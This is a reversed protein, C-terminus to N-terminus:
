SGEGELQDYMDDVQKTHRRGTAIHSVAAETVGHEAAIAKLPMGRLRSRVIEAVSADSLSRRGNGWGWELNDLRADAPDNNLYAVRKGPPRPGVYTTLVIEGVTLLAFYNGRWLRVHRKGKAVTYPCPEWTTGTDNLRLVDGGPNCAYHPYDPMPRYDDPPM